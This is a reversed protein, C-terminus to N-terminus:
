KKGVVSVSIKIFLTQMIKRTAECREASGTVKFQDALSQATPHSRMAVPRFKLLFSQFNAGVGHRVSFELLVNDRRLSM